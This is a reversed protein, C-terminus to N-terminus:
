CRLVGKYLKLYPVECSIITTANLIFIALTTTRVFFNYFFRTKHSEGVLCFDSMASDSQTFSFLAWVTRPKENRELVVM